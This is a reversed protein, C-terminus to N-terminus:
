EYYLRSFDYFTVPYFAFGKLDKRSAVILSPDVLFAAAAEQTLIEQCRKYEEIRKEGDLEVRAAEILGDYEENSFRYFNKGYGTQFRGLVADPDLKGSLGVITAEYDAQTYVRDLWTTWEITEIRADIGVASLQQALIQSSDVLPQYNAPVAVTMSFGNEYGAEKLLSKAKEQDLEYSGELESNYYSEMIPSFNSYIKTAYGGFAGDILEDRNIAYSVAQRVRIDDFPAKENNMFLGVAMNQPSRYIEYEGELAPADEASIMTAMDLQGSQLASVVAATDSMIYIEVRDIKVLDSGDSAKRYYDPNKELVVRQSPTYEVFRFPGTGVPNAAQDEYGEPLIAIVNLSLFSASPGSLTMVFTNEDPAELKEVMSFKSTLPEGGGLGTLTNYSYLVDASSFEKGNHFTVGQRLHFTYTKGDESIDWSEALGPILDGKEDYLCLGEFVNHFVAETDSAASQWPDLSDPEASNNIRVVKPEGATNPDSTEASGASSTEQSGPTSSAGQSGATQGSCGAFSAALLALALFLALAKSIKRLNRKM